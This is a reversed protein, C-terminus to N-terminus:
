EVNLELPLRAQVCDNKGLGKLTTFETYYSGLKSKLLKTEIYNDPKTEIFSALLNKKQPYAVVTYNEIDARQIAISLAKDIGGLEDVLGLEKAKTGTWVRGQGVANIDEKSMSRGQACRTLFIDYGRNIATQILAQEGTNMPRTLSGFDSYTNTKVVDFTLGLKGALKGANPVMGFIGISGTLTTPQAVICDAPCAIYYGGSTAYDGMSVIVPKAKTLESVAYWIQESGYASGGPSNIRLVVAKVEEDERLERLDKIIKESSIGEESLSIGKEDIAGFAYYIAVVNSSKEKLINKKAHVAEKLGLVALQDDEGVQLYHKLYNHVEAKYILTDVLGCTVFEETPRFTLMRDAYANLTDASLHRSLSVDDVLQDWIATVYETVQERNEASMKTDIYPEVFSKYSGVKFVQVEVGVHQLLDKFFVPKVALGKWEVAGRPNLLVKDAVSSLYYLKQTYNDGYAVVTKGTTRFDALANRIELLSAYSAQLDTAQLYIGKINDNDKAKKIASLIDDLGYTNFKTNGWLVDLPNDTVREVLEGDLQLMLVSNKNIVTEAEGSSAISLAISVGAVLLIMNSVVIAIIVALTLKLFKRM